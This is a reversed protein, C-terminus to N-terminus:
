KLYVTKNLDTELRYVSLKFKSPHPSTSRASHQQPHTPELLKLIVALGTARLAVLRISGICGHKGKQEKWEKRSEEKLIKLIEEGREM